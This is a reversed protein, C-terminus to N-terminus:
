NGNKQKQGRQLVVSEQKSLSLSQYVVCLVRKIKASCLYNFTLCYPSHCKKVVCPFAGHIRVFGVGSLICFSDTFERGPVAVWTFAVASESM